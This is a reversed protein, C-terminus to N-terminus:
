SPCHDNSSSVIKKDNDGKGTESTDGNSQDLALLIIGIIVLSLAVLLLVCIGGFDKTSFRSQSLFFVPPNYITYGSLALIALEILTLSFIAIGRLSVNAMQQDNSM